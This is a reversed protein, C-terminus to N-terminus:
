VIPDEEETDRGPAPSFSLYLTLPLFRPHPFPGAAKLLQGSVSSDRVDM